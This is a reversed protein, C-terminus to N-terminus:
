PNDDYSQLPDIHYSCCWRTVWIRSSFCPSFSGITVNGVGVINSAYSRLTDLFITS